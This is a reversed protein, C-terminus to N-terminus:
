DGDRIINGDADRPKPPRGRRKESAEAKVTKEVDAHKDAVPEAHGAACLKAGVVDPVEVVGGRPPWPKLDLTGSMDVKMRVKM